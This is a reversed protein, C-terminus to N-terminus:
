WARRACPPLHAAARRHSRLCLPHSFAEVLPHARLTIRYMERRAAGGCIAAMDSAGTTVISVDMPGTPSSHTVCRSPSTKRAHGGPKQASASFRLAKAAVPQVDVVCGAGACVENLRAAGRKRTPLSGSAAAKSRSVSSVRRTGRTCLQGLTTVVVADRAYVRRPAAPQRRLSKTASAAAMSRRGESGHVRRQRM